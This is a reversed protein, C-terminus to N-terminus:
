TLKSYTVLLFPDTPRWYSAPKAVLNDSLRLHINGHESLLKVLAVARKYSIKGRFSREKYPPIYNLSMMNFSLTYQLM